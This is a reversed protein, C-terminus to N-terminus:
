NRLDVDPAACRATGLKQAAAPAPTTIPGDLLNGDLIAGDPHEVILALVRVNTQASGLATGRYDTIMQVLDAAIWDNDEAVLVRKGSLMATM